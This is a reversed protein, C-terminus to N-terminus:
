DMDLEYINYSGFDMIGSAAFGWCKCLHNRKNMSRYNITKKLYKLVRQIAQWHQTRPNSTYRSLKGIVFAIDLRAKFKEVTGDVKQKRKFIWKCGLPRCGPPLDTLVWTNNGMISDMEDNVAEKWFAVDQSRIAENFTQPDDLSRQSPRPISSFRNEDFIVDMLDIITNIAVSDNPKIVYFKFDKSHEVYGVFICEIGREGLTKLKPDPLRVDARCGWVSLYNLNQKRKTWLEYPTIKNRKNPV